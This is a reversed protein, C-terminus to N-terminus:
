FMSLLNTARTRFLGGCLPRQVDKNEVNVSLAQPKNEFFCYATLASCPNEIFVQDQRNRYRIDTTDFSLLFLNEYLEVNFNKNLEDM